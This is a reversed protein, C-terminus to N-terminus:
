LQGVECRVHVVDAANLGGVVKPESGGGKREVEIRERRGVQHNFGFFVVEVATREDVIWDQNVLSFSGLTWRRSGVIAQGPGASGGRRVSDVVKIIATSRTRRVGVM